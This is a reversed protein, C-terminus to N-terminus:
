ILSMTPMVQMKTYVGSRPFNINRQTLKCVIVRINSKRGLSNTDHHHLAFALTGNNQPALSLYEKQKKKEHTSEHLLFQILYVYEPNLSFPSFRDDNSM